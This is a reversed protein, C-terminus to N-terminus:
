GKDTFAVSACTQTDWGAEGERLPRCYFGEVSSQSPSHSLASENLHTGDDNQFIVMPWTQGHRHSWIPFTNVRRGYPWAWASNFDMRGPRNGLGRRGTKDTIFLTDVFTGDAQELWVVLQLDDSPTFDVDVVRCM